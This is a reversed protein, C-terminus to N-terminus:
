AFTMGTTDVNPAGTIIAYKKATTYANSVTFGRGILGDNKTLFITKLPESHDSNDHMQMLDKGADGAAYNAQTNGTTDGIRSVKICPVWTSVTYLEAALARNAVGGPITDGDQFGYGTDVYASLEACTPIRGGASQALAWVQNWTPATAAEYFQIHPGVPAGAAQVSSSLDSAYVRLDDVAAGTIQLSGGATELTSVDVTASAAAGGVHLSANNGSGPYTLAVHTWAPPAASFGWIEVECVTIIDTVSTRHVFVYRGNAECLVDKQNSSSPLGGTTSCTKGTTRDDETSITIKFDDLRDQEADSRGWVKVLYVTKESGLDVRWWPAQDSDSHTCANCGPTTGWAGAAMNQCHNGDIGLSASLSYKVSSQAATCEGQQCFQESSRIDGAQVADVSAAGGDFVSLGAGSAGAGARLWAAVTWAGTWAFTGAVPAVLTQGVALVLANDGAARSETTAGALGLTIDTGLTADGRAADDEFDWRAVPAGAIERVQELTLARGSFVRLDDVAAGTIQLGGGATTLTSVDVTASAAAGGVHLSATNGSGPYTLAFHTWQGATLVSAPGYAELECLTMFNCTSGCLHYDPDTKTSSIITLYRGTKLTTCFLLDIYPTPTQLDIKTDEYCLDSAAPSTAPDDSIYIKFGSFRPAYNYYTYIKVALIDRTQEFDIQVWVDSAGGDDTFACKNAENSKPTTDTNGDVARYAGALANRSRHSIMTAPCAPDQSSIDAYMQGTGTSPVGPLGPCERAYNVNGHVGQGANVGAVAATAAAGDVLTLVNTAGSPLRLWAAVTWEGTWAFTSDVPAVLTQAAAVELAYLRRAPAPTYSPTDPTLTATVLNAFVVGGVTPDVVAQAEHEAAAQRRAARDHYSALDGDFTYWRDATATPADGAYGALGHIALGLEARSLVRPAVFAEGLLGAFTGGGLTLSYDAALQGPTSGPTPAYVKFQCVALYQQTSEISIYQGQGICTVERQNNEDSTIASNPGSCISNTQGDADGLRIKWGTQPMTSGSDTRAFIRVKAVNQTSGLDIRFWAASSPSAGADASQWCNGHTYTTGGSVANSMTTLHSRAADNAGYLQSSSVSTCGAEGDEAGCRALNTGTDVVALTGPTSPRFTIVIGYYIESVSEVLKLKDGPEVDYFTTDTPFTIENVGNQAGVAVQSIRTSTGHLPNAFTSPPRVWHLEIDDDGSTTPNSYGANGYRVRVGDYGPPVTFEFTCEHSGSSFLSDSQGYTSFIVGYNFIANVQVAYADWLATTNKDSFDWVLEAFGGCGDVGAGAHLFNGSADPAYVRAATDSVVLAYVGLGQDAAALLTAGQAADVTGAGGPCGAEVAGASAGLKAITNGVGDALTVLDGTQRAADPRALVVATFGRAVDLAEGPTFVTTEGAAYSQADLAADFAGNPRTGTADVTGTVATPCTTATAQARALGLGLVLVLRGVAWARRPM